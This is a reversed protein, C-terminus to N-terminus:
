GELEAERKRYIFMLNRVYVFTNFSFGLIFVPDARRLAYALLILSGVISMYWFGVPIISEKRRESVIWQYAFRCGFISQGILGFIAWLDCKAWIEAIHQHM